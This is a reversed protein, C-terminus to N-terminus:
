SPTLVVEAGQDSKASPTLVVEAGQDPQLKEAEGSRQMGDNQTMPDAESIRRMHGDSAPLGLGSDHMTALRPLWAHSGASQANFQGGTKGMDLTINRSYQSANGPSKPPQNESQSRRRQKSRFTGRTKSRATTYARSMGSFAHSISHRMTSTVYSSAKDSLAHVQEYPDLGHRRLFDILRGVLPAMMYRYLNHTLNEMCIMRWILGLAVIMGFDLPVNEKSYNFYDYVSQRRMEADAEAELEDVTLAETSWRTFSIWPLWSTPAGDSELSDLTPNVGGLFVGTILPWMVAAMMANEKNKFTVSFALGVGTNTFCILFMHLWLRTFELNTYIFNVYGCLFILSHWANDFCVIVNKSLFYATSSVSSAAERAHTVKEDGLYNLSSVSSLVGLVTAVLLMNQPVENFEWSAGFLSGVTLGAGFLVVANVFHLFQARIWQKAARLTLTSLQASFRQTVQASGGSGMFSLQSPLTDGRPQSESSARGLTYAMGEHMIQLRNVYMIFEKLSIEDGSDNIENFLEEVEDVELPFGLDALFEHIEVRSLSGSGDEDVKKWKQTLNKMLIESFDM